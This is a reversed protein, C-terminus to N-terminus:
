KRAPKANKAVAKGGMGHERKYREVARDQAKGLAEAEKKAAEAAKAKKAEAQAKAADDMPAVPLKAQALGASLAFALAGAALLNGTKM